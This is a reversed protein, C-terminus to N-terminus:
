GGEHLGLEAEINITRNGYKDAGYEWTIDEDEEIEYVDAFIPAFENVLWEADRTCFAKMDFECELPIDVRDTGITIKIRANNGDNIQHFEFNSVWTKARKRDKDTM